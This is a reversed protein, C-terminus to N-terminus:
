EFRLKIAEGLGMDNVKQQLTKDGLRDHGSARIIRAIDKAWAQLNVDANGERRFAEAKYIRAKKRNSDKFALLLENTRCDRMTCEICIDGETVHGIVTSVGPIAKPAQGMVASLIHLGPRQPRFHVLAMDIRMDAEAPTTTLEWHCNNAANLEQLTEALAQVVYDQMQYAMVRTMDPYQNRVRSVDLPNVFIRGERKEAYPNGKGHFWIGDVPLKRIHKLEVPYLGSESELTHGCSALVFCAAAITVLQIEKKM